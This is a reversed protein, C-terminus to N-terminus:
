PQNLSESISDNKIQPGSKELYVLTLKPNIKEQRFIHYGLHQYLRINRESQHGTFLEFRAVRKLSEEIALVLRTGIGQGQLEPQVILRGIYATESRVFGRVSGVIQGNSLAKLVTQKQIEDVMEELTQQLPSITYDNYIAAESQYAKKQLDLIERADAVTAVEILM